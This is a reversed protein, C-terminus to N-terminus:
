RQSERLNRLIPDKAGSPSEVNQSRLEQQQLAEGPQREAQLQRVAETEAVAELVM